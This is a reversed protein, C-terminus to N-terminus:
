NGGRKKAYKMGFCFALGVVCVALGTDLVKDLINREKLM